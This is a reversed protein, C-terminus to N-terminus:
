SILRLKARKIRAKKSEDLRDIIKQKRVSLKEPKEVGVLRQIKKLENKLNYFEPETLISM